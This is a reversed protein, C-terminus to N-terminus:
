LEVSGGAAEWYCADRDIRLHLASVYKRTAKNTCRQWGTGHKSSSILQKVVKM